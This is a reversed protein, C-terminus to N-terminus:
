GRKDLYDQADSEPCSGDKWDKEVAEAELLILENLSLWM